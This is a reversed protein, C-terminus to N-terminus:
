KAENGKGRGEQRIRRICEKGGRKVHGTTGLRSVRARLIGAAGTDDSSSACNKAATVPAM